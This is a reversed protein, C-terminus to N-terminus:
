RQLTIWLIIGNVSFVHFIPYPRSLNTIQILQRYFSGEGIIRSNYHTVFIQYFIVLLVKEDKNEQM